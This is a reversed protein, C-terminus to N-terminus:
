DMETLAKIRANQIIRRATPDTCPTGPHSLWWITPDLWEFTALNPIM